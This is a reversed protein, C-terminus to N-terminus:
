TDKEVKTFLHKANRNVRRRPDGEVAVTLKGEPKFAWRATFDKGGPLGDLAAPSMFEPTTYCRKKGFKKIAEAEAEEKFERNSRAKVMKLGPVDAGASLKGFATKSAAKFIIKGVEQLDLLRGLQENTLAKAAEAAEVEQDKKTKATMKVVVKLMLSQLEEMAAMISPCAHGRAPCFRCWTGWSTDRSVMATDMAPVCEDFLWADLFDTTVEWTRHPGEAHWGRPQVIHIVINDVADWLGLDELTGAAYYLCQPNGVADVVIGAGHKYDWVHLTKNAEDYFVFDSTGYFVKHIDPCHFKREVWSNGQNRDPHWEDLMHLYSQVADAMDKSILIHKQEVDYLDPAVVTDGIIAHGIFSWPECKGGLCHEGLTHAATGEAAFESEEDQIGESQGVSGPCSMWRSAGSAGLPSHAPLSHKM